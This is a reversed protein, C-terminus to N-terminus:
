ERISRLELYECEDKAIEELEECFEKFDDIFEHGDFGCDSSEALSDLIGLMGGSYVLYSAGMGIVNITLAISYNKLKDAYGYLIEEMEDTIEGDIPRYSLGSLFEIMDKATDTEHYREDDPRPWCLCCSVFTKTKDPNFVIIVQGRLSKFALDQLANLEENSIM